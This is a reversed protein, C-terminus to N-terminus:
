KRCRKKEKMLEGFEKRKEETWTSKRSHFEWHRTIETGDKMKFLLTNKAIPIIKEITEKLVTNNLHEIGV